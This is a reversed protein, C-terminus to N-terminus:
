AGGYLLHRKGKPHMGSRLGPSLTRLADIPHGPRAAKEPRCSTCAAKTCLHPSQRIITRVFHRQTLIRNGSTVTSRGTRTTPPTPRALPRRVCLSHPRPSRRLPRPTLEHRSRGVDALEGSRDAPGLGLAVLVPRV